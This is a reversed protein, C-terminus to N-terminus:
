RVRPKFNMMYDDELFTTCTTMILKKEKLSYFIGGRTGMSYGIFM